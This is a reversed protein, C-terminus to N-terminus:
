PTRSKNCSILPKFSQFALTQMKNYNLSIIPFFSLPWQELQDRAIWTRVEYIGCRELSPAKIFSPIISLENWATLNVVLRKLIVFSIVGAATSSSFASGAVVFARYNKLKKKKLKIKNGQRSKM